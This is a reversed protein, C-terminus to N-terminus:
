SCQRKAKRLGTMFPFRIGAGITILRMFFAGIRFSLLHMALSSGLSYGIFLEPEEYMIIAIREPRESREPNDSEILFVIVIMFLTIFYTAISVNLRAMQASWKGYLKYHQRAWWFGAFAITFLFSLLWYIAANYFYLPLFLLGM